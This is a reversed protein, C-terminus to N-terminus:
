IIDHKFHLFKSFFNFAKFSILSIILSDSFFFSFLTSVLNLSNISLLLINSIIKSSLTWSSIIFLDVFKYLYKALYSKNDSLIISFTITLCDLFSKIFFNNISIIDSSGWCFFSLNM